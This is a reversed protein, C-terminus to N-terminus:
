QTRKGEKRRGEMAILGGNRDDVRGNGGSSSSGTDDHGAHHAKRQTLGDVMVIQLGEMEVVIM